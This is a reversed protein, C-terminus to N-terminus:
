SAYAGQGKAADVITDRSVKHKVALAEITPPKKRSRESKINRVQKKTLAKPKAM